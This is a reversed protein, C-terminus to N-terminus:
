LFSCRVWFMATLDISPKFCQSDDSNASLDAFRSFRFSFLFICADTYVICVSLVQLSVVLLLLHSSKSSKHGTEEPITFLLADPSSGGATKTMHWLLLGRGPILAWCNVSERWQGGEPKKLGGEGERGM